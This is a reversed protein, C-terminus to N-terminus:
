EGTVPSQAPPPGPPTQPKAKGLTEYVSLLFITALPQTFLSGIFISSGIASIGIFLIFVVIHDVISEKKTVMSYSQKVADILGLNRDTMLPLMYICCFSVALLFVVGPLFLLMLGIMTIIFVVIGFCLLPLFLRMQSFIDQVKPERRERLLLLISHMYGAMTVPALIGLTVVSIAIMALTMFILPAIYQLTMKWANELYYKFDMSTEEV